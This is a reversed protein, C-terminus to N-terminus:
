DDYTGLVQKGAANTVRVGDIQRAPVACSMTVNVVVGSVSHYTGATWWSGNDERMSVTLDNGGSQGSVRLDM